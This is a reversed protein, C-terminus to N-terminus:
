RLDEWSIGHKAVFLVLTRVQKKNEESLSNYGDNIANGASSFLKEIEDSNKVLISACRAATQPNNSAFSLISGIASAAVAGVAIIIKAAGIITLILKAGAVLDKKYYVDHIGRNINIRYDNVIDKIIGSQPKINVKVPVTSVPEDELEEIVLAVIDNVDICDKLQKKKLCLDYEDNIKDRLDKFDDNDFNLEDEDLFTSGKIDDIDDCSIDAIFEKIQRKIEKRKM